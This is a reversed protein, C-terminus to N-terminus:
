CRGAPSCSEPCVTAGADVLLEVAEIAGALSATHLATGDGFNLDPDAGAMLLMKIRGVNCIKVAGQEAPWLEAM